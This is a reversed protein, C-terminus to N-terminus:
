VTFQLEDSRCGDECHTPGNEPHAKAGHFGRRVFTGRARKRYIEWGPTIESGGFALQSREVPECEM